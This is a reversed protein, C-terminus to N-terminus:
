TFLSNTNQYWACRQLNTRCFYHNSDEFDDLYNIHFIELWDPELEVEGVDTLVPVVTTTDKEVVIREEDGEGSEESGRLCELYM